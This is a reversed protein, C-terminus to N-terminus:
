ICIHGCAHMVPLEVGDVSKAITKSAYPLGTQESIPLADMDTRLMITKGKGNRFVGVVGNGGVNTTVEFGLDTLRKAMKEATKFEMLSLEPNQHLDEYTAKANKIQGEVIKCIVKDTTNQSLLPAALGALIIMVIAKKM